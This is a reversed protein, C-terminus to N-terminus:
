VGLITYPAQQALNATILLKYFAGSPDQEFRNAIGLIRWTLTNTVAHTSIDIRPSILTSGAVQNNTLDVNEGEYTLYTAETTATTNDDCDAEFIQNAVPIVWIEPRRDTITGWANGGPLSAGYTKAGLTADYYKGIADIVGFPTDGAAAMAISGDSVRKVVDGKRLDCNVGGPAAQYATAAFCRITHCTQGSGLEGQWRLGYMSPNDSM